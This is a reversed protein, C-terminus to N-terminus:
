RGRNFDHAFLRQGFLKVCHMKTEVRSQRHYRTVQRWLARGLNKSSRVAENRPRAGPKNPKWLKANNRLNPAAQFQDLPDILGQPFSLPPMIPQSRTTANARTVLGMRPSVALRKTRHSRILSTLYCPHTWHGATTQKCVMFPASAAVRSRSLM